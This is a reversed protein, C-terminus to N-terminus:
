HSMEPVSSSKVRSCTHRTAAFNPMWRSSNSDEQRSCGSPALAEARAELFPSQGLRTVASV